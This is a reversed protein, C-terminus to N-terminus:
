DLGAYWFMAMASKGLAHNSRRHTDVGILAFECKAFLHCAPPINTGIEASVAPLRLDREAAIAQYIMASAIGERWLDYDVQLDIARLVGRGPVARAALLGAARGEHEALM